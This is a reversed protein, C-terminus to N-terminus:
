NYDYDNFEVKGCLLKRYEFLNQKIKSTRAMQTLSSPVNLVEDQAGTVDTVDISCVEELM